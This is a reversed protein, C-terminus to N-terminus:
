HSTTKPLGRWPTVRTRRPTHVNRAAFRKKLDEIDARLKEYELDRVLRAMVQAIYGCITFWRQQVQAKTHPQNSKKFSADLLTALHTLVEERKASRLHEVIEPSKASGLFSSVLENIEDPPNETM